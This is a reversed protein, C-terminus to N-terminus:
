LKFLRAGHVVRMLFVAQKEIRFIIRYDGILIYRYEIGLYESESIIPCRRPFRRLTQMKEEIKVVFEAAREQSDGAIYQWIQEIDEEASQTIYINYKISM